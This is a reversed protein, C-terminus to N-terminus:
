DKYRRKYDKYSKSKNFLSPESEILAEIYGRDAGSDILQNLKLIFTEYGSLSSIMSRLYESYSQANNFVHLCNNFVEHYRENFYEKLAIEDSNLIENNYKIWQKRNM